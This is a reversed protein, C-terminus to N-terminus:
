PKAAPRIRLVHVMNQDPSTTAIVSVQDDGSGEVHVDVEGNASTPLEILPGEALHDSGGGFFTHITRTERHLVLVDDKTDANLNALRSIILRASATPGFKVAETGPDFNCDGGPLLKVAADKGSARFGGSVFADAFRDSTFHGGAVSFAFAFGAPYDFRRPTGAFGFAQDPLNRRGCVGAVKTQTAFILDLNQDGNIDAFRVERLGGDFGMNQIGSGRDRFGTFAGGSLEATFLGIESDSLDELDGHCAINSSSGGSCPWVYSCRSMAIEDVGDGDIDAADASIVQHVLSKQACSGGSCSLVKDILLRDASLHAGSAGAGASDFHSWVEIQPNQTVYAYLHPMGRACTQVTANPPMVEQYSSCVNKLFVLLSKKGSRDLVATKMATVREPFLDSFAARYSGDASGFLVALQHQADMGGSGGCSADTGGVVVIDSSGDGDLDDVVIPQFEPDPADLAIASPPIEFSTRTAEVGRLARAEFTIPSGEFGAAHAQVTIKANEVSSATAGAHVFVRSVGETGEPQTSDNVIDHKSVSPQPDDIFGSGGIVRWRVKVGNLAAGNEDLTRVLFADRASLGDVVTAVHQDGDLKPADPPIQISSALPAVVELAALVEDDTAKDLSAQACSWARMIKPGENSVELCARENKVTADSYRKCSPGWGEVVITYTARKLSPLQGITDNVPGAVKAIATLGTRAEADGEPAGHPDFTECSGGTAFVFVRIESIIKRVAESPFRVSITGSRSCAAAAGCALIAPVWGAFRKM